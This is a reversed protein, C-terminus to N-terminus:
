RSEAAGAASNTTKGDTEDGYDMAVTMGMSTGRMKRVRNTVPDFTFTVDIGGRGLRQKPSAAAFRYRWQLETASGSVEVPAGLLATLGAQSPRDIAAPDIAAHDVNVSASRNKQDIKAGGMSRLTTLVFQKPMFTAFFSEPVILKALKHDTFFLDFEVAYPAHEGDAVTREKIWRFHWKEAAGAKQRSEPSWKFFGDFDEDLLVPEKCTLKLGDRTDAEFYRDFKALQNKLQLLRLYVCGSLTLCAAVVALLRLWVAPRRTPSTPGISRRISM